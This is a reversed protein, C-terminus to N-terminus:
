ADAGGSDRGGPGYGYAFSGDVGLEGLEHMLTRAVGAAGGEGLRVSLHLVRLPPTAAGPDAAPVGSM